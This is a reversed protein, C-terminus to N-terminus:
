SVPRAHRLHGALLENIQRVPQRIIPAKVPNGRSDRRPRRHRCLYEFVDEQESSHDHGVVGTGFFAELPDDKLRGPRVLNRPTERRVNNIFIERLSAPSYVIDVTSGRYQQAMSTSADFKVSAEKRIAVFVKLQHSVRRLQYAVEVLGMQSFYWINPSLEGAHSARTAVQTTIHM